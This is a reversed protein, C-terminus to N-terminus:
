DVWSHPKAWLRVDTVGLILSQEFDSVVCGGQGLKVRLSCAIVANPRLCRLDVKGDEALKREKYKDKMM